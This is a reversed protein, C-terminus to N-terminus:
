NLFRTALMLYILIGLIDNSTTVFPGTALAPDIKFREQTLPVIAGVSTSILIVCLMSVAVVGGLMPDGFWAWSTLFILSSCVVGTIVSVGVERLLRPIADRPSTEGM